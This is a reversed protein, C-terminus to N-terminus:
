QRSIGSPSVGFKKKFATSFHSRNEFGVELFVDSPRQRQRTILYHAQDLRRQLLWKEPPEGFLKVFDRKFTSLSRGTLQAFKSIPVNYTFHRNMYAELDIKHPEGFDFLLNKLSSNRLLLELAEWTKLKALSATLKEPHEFYPLLSQFYGQLFPDAQIAVLAGGTYVGTARIEKERSYAQLSAQDLLVNISLFPGNAAPRKVTKVLQNRKILGLAGAGFTQSGQVHHFDIEGAVVYSLAHEPVFPEHGRKGEGTCSYLINYQLRDQLM